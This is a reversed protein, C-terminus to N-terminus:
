HTVDVTGLKIDHQLALQVQSYTQKCFPPLALSWPMVSEIQANTPNEGWEPLVTLLHMLYGYVDLQNRKATEIISMVAASADAGKETDCFLFNKRNIVFPKVTREALNNTMEVKPNDLFLYLKEKQNLAYTVAADLSNGKSPRLTHIIDYVQDLLPKVQNQRMELIQEETYNAEKADREYKAAKDLLAVIKASPCDTVGEPICDVFKRRAHAWCGANEYDGSGYSQLGDTQVVGTYKGLLEEATVKSRSDRYTYLAIKRSACAGTCVIWMQGKKKTPKGDIKLVRIPTEDANLVTEKFAYEWFKKILPVFWHAGMIVWNAMVTRNLYIDRLKWYQEQRYLPEGLQFKRQMIDAVLSADAMGKPVICVPTRNEAAVIHDKIGTKECNKCKYVKQYYKIVYIQEPIVAIRSTLYKTAFETMPKGCVDCIRQEEPIDFIVPKEILNKRIVNRGRHKGTKKSKKTIEEVTPEPASADSEAEAENFLGEFALQGDCIFKSKESKQGFLMKNRKLVLETLHEIRLDKDESERKLDSNKKELEAKESELESCKQMAIEYAKKLEEYTM